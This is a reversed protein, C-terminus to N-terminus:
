RLRTSSSAAYRSERPSRGCPATSSMGSTPWRAGALTRPALPPRPRAAPCQRSTWRRGTPTPRALWDARLASSKASDTSAGHSPSAPTGDPSSSVFAQEADTLRGRLWEAAALLGHAVSSLLWEDDGLAQSAFAATDEADGRLQALFSRHLVIQAPINALM